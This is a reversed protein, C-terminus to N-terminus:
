HYAYIDLNDFLADFNRQFMTKAVRMKLTATLIFNAEDVRADTLLIAKSLVSPLRMTLLSRCMKRANSM